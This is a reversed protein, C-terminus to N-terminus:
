KETYNFPFKKNILLKSLIKQNIMIIIPIKCKIRKNM